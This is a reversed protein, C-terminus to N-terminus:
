KYAGFGPQALSKYLVGHTDYAPDNYVELVLAFAGWIDPGIEKGDDSYWVGAVKHATSPVAVIKVFDVWQSGDPNTDVMHNTEWAGSGIYNGPRDLKGDGDRDMNSLWADNWKMELQTTRYPWYWRTAARPNQALYTADEGAYPPFGEGGLYVNAYSGLFMHAQYNYGYPDFGVMLPQGHLYHTPQYVLVGDQISTGSKAAWGVSFVSVLIVCLVMVVCWRKASKKM